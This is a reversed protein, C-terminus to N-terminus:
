SRKRPNRSKRLRLKQTRPKRKRRRPAPQCKPCFHSSRGAVIVRRIPTHCRYCPKGERGYARHHRQYEGPEGNADLFDSISSGRMIIARNLIDQLLKRLTATEKGSLTSGVRAPHIKARWLSEDAYINGVGRLVSQDLLLAKIRSNRSRVREDFEAPSVELPDAGAGAVEKALSEATLYAMRGFRRPDTYRLERGDDLTFSVHTHKDFPIEAASPALQGTMGLHVLLSAADNEANSNAASKIVTEIVAVSDAMAVGIEESAALRLLMFKGFREISAIKQGSLRTFEAPNDIFDNKGIWVSLIKRGLISQRLGRVVTEVEPLEPM